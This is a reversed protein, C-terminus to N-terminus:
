RGLFDFTLKMVQTVTDADSALLAHAAGKITVLECNKYREAFRHQPANNVMTDNEASLILVPVTIGRMTRRRLIRNGVTLSRSVWGFSMPSSQYEANERRMTMNHEFRARSSGYAVKYQVDPDFEDSLSFQKKGGLIWRGITLGVRAVSVPVRDVVPEFMPASLVAKKVKHSYKALYLASVAGGMSHAYLHIPKDEVKLVVDDVFQSLDKVYDDFSDVHLLERKDTLRDSLGHCRQDYIFVNYGQQLMYYICEYFKKTFESLGHVMVVSATSGEALFYEYFISVGDFARFSGCVRIEELKATMERIATPFADESVVNLQHDPIFKM